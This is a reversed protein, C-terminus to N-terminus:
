QAARKVARAYADRCYDRDAHLIKFRDQRLAEQEPTFCTVFGSGPPCASRDADPLAPPPDLLAIEKGKKEASTCHMHGQDDAATTAPTDDVATTAPMYLCAAAFFSIAMTLMLRSQAKEYMQKQM